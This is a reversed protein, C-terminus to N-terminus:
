KQWGFGLSVELKYHIIEKPLEFVIKATKSINPNVKQLFFGVDRGNLYMDLEASSDYKSGYALVRFMEGDVMRAKKDGNKITVEM